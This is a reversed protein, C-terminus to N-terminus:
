FEEKLESGEYTSSDRRKWFGYYISFVIYIIKGLNVVIISTIRINFYNENYKTNIKPKFTKVRFFPYLLSYIGSIGEYLIGYLIANLAADDLSYDINIKTRLTFKAKTNKLFSITNVVDNFNIKPKEERSFAKFSDKLNQKQEETFKRGKSPIITKNYLKFSFIGKDYILTIKIPIPSLLITVLIVVSFFIFKIM